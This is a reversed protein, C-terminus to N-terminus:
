LVAIAHDHEKSAFYAQAIFLRIQVDDPRLKKAKEYFAIAKKKGTKTAEEVDAMKKDFDEKAQELLLAKDGRHTDIERKRKEYDAKLQNGGCDDQMCTHGMNIYIAPDASM